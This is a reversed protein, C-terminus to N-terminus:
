LQHSRLSHAARSNCPHSIIKSFFQLSRPIQERSHITTIGSRGATLTRASIRFGKKYMKIIKLDSVQSGKKYMYIRKINSIRSGQLQFTMSTELDAPFPAAESTPPFITPIAGQMPIGPIARKWSTRRRGSTCQLPMAQTVWRRLETNLVRPTMVQSSPPKLRAMSTWTTWNTARNNQLHTLHDLSIIRHNRLLIPRNTPPGKLPMTHPGPLVM